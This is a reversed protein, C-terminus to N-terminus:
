DSSPAECTAPRRPPGPYLRTHLSMTATRATCSPSAGSATISLPSSPAASVRGPSLTWSVGAARSGMKWTVASPPFLFVVEPLIRRDTLGDWGGQVRVRGGGDRRGRLLRHRSGILRAGVGFGRGVVAGGREMAWARKQLAGLNRQRQGLLLPDVSRENPNSSPFPRSQLAPTRKGRLPLQSETSPIQRGRGAVTAGPVHCGCM